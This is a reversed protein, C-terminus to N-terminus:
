APSPLNLAAALTVPQERQIGHHHARRVRRDTIRLGYATLRPRPPQGVLISILSPAQKAETTASAVMHMGEGPTFLAGFLLGISMAFATTVLYIAITKVRM